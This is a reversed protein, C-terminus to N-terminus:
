CTLLHITPAGGSPMLGTESNTCLHESWTDIREMLTGIQLREHEPAYPQLNQRALRLLAIAPQRRNKQMHVFSAALQILGKYFSAGPTGRRGLWLEELVEHGEFFLQRNFCEFFALYRADLDRGQCQQVLAAVQESQSM